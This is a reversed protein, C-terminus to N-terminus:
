NGFIEEVATVCDGPDVDTVAPVTVEAPGYPTPVKVSYPQGSSYSICDAHAAPAALGLGVTAIVATGIVALARKLSGGGHPGGASDGRRLAIRM